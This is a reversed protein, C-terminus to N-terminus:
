GTENTKNEGLAKDAQEFAELPIVELTKFMLSEPHILINERNVGRVVNMPDKGFVNILAAAFLENRLDTKGKFEKTLGQMLKAETLSENAAHDLIVQAPEESYLAKILTTKNIETVGLSVNKIDSNELAERKVIFIKYYDEPLEDEEMYDKIKSVNEVGTILNETENRFDLAIASLFTQNDALVFVNQSEGFNEKYYEADQLVFFGGILLIIGVATAVTFMLSITKKIIRFVLYLILLGAAVLLWEIM